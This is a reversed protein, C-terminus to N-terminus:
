MPWIHEFNDANNLLLNLYDRRPNETAGFVTVVQYNELNTIWVPSPTVSREVLKGNIYCRDKKVGGCLSKAETYKRQQELQHFQQHLLNLAYPKYRHNEGNVVIIKCNNDIAEHWYNSSIQERMPLSKLDINFNALEALASYFLHLKQQFLQKFEIVTIPLQWCPHNPEVLLTSGRYWPARSPETVRGRDSTRRYYCSRRAGQGVGGLHFMIWTLNILLNAITNQDSASVASVAQSYSLTLIGSQEGCADNKGKLTPRAETQIVKGQLIQFKVWGYKHPNLSGFLNAEWYKVESIPLVGLAFARFWYRLISKFAIPRVEALSYGRMQWKHYRENWHWDNIQKQGHILQGKLSFNVQFFEQNSQKKEPLFKGYGTNVQSGIGSELGAMLWKKVQQLYEPNNDRNTLRLGILFTPEQLSLFINPNPQYKLSNQEWKWINNALDVTLGEQNPLPYADLFIVKSIHNSGQNEFSGFHSIVQQEAQKRNVNHNNFMIEQIAQNRAVGRLTSSPIYPMGLADFAPTLINEPGRHGGVRIRWSCKIQFYNGEGAILKTRNTLQTLRKQYNAQQQAMQLIQLKTLHQYDSNPERMWRLYEIFSATPDPRDIQSNLWPNPSHQLLDQNHQQESVEINTLQTSKQLNNKYTNGQFTKPKEVPPKIIKKPKQFPNTM